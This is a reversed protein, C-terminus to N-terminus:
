KEDRLTASFAAREITAILVDPSISNPPDVTVRVERADFDVMVREVGPLFLLSMALKSPCDPCRMGEVHLVIVEGSIPGLRPDPGLPSDAPNNTGM